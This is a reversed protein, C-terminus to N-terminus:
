GLQALLRMLIAVCKWHDLTSTAASWQKVKKETEPYEIRKNKLDEVKPWICLGIGCLSRWDLRWGVQINIM